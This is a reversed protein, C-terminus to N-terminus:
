LVFDVHVQVHRTMQISEYVITIERALHQRSYERTVSELSDDVLHLYLPLTQLIIDSMQASCFNEGFMSDLYYEVCTSSVAESQNEMLALVFDGGAMRSMHIGRLFAYIEPNEDIFNMRYVRQQTVNIDRQETTVGLTEVTNAGLAGGIWQYPLPHDVGKWFRIWMTLFALYGIYDKIKERQDSTFTALKEKAKVIWVRSKIMSSNNLVLYLKYYLEILLSNHIKAFCQELYDHLAEVMEYSFETQGLKPDPIMLHFMGYQDQIVSDILEQCSWSRYVRSKGYSLIPMTELNIVPYRLSKSVFDTYRLTKRPEMSDILYGSKNRAFRYRFLSWRSTVSEHYVTDFLDQRSVTPEVEYWEIIEQDTYYNLLHYAEESSFDGLIPPKMFNKDRNLVLNYLRLRKVVQWYDDKPKSNFIIYMGYKDIKKSYNSISFDLIANSTKDDIFNEMFLRSPSLQFSGRTSSAFLSTFSLLNLPPTEELKSQYPYDVVDEIPYSPNWNTAYRRAFEVWGKPKPYIIESEFNVEMNEIEYHLCVWLIDLALINSMKYANKGFGLYSLINKITKYSKAAYFLPSVHGDLNSLHYIKKKVIDDAIQPLDDFRPEKKLQGKYFQGDVTQQEIIPPPRRQRKPKLM